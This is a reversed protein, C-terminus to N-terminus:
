NTLFFREDIDIGSDKIMRRYEERFSEKRHHEQQNKIYNIITDKERHSYTLACYGAGWGKFMPFVKNKKIWFSTSTKIDRILSALAISPALDTFLHIHDEMGNIRFLKCNKEKIIGWIYKYLDPLKEQTFVKESKQTRFVLHYYVQRYCSM